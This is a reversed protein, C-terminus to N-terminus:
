GVVAEVNHDAGQQSVPVAQIAAQRRIWIMGLPREPTRGILHGGTRWHRHTLEPIGLSRLADTPQPRRHLRHQV